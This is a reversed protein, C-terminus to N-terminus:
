GLNGPSGTRLVGPLLHPRAAPLHPTRGEPGLLLAQGVRAGAPRLAKCCHAGACTHMNLHHRLVDHGLACIELSIQSGRASISLILHGCAMFGEARLSGQKVQLQRLATRIGTLL